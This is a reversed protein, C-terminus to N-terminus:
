GRGGPPASVPASPPPGAVAMAYRLAREELRTTLDTFLEWAELGPWGEPLAEVPLGVDLFPLPRWARLVTVHDVMAQRDDLEHGEARWREAIAGVAEIFQRYRQDLGPLDWSQRVLDSPTGFARYHARFLHVYGELEAEALAERAEAEVHWPALWVASALNGFGLWSLRSRLVYRDARKTDPVSFVAVVWGDELSSTQPRRYIRLDGRALLRSGSPSLVYGASDWRRSSEVMGRRKLRSIASRVSQADVGLDAMLRIVGAIPMWGDLRRMYAGFVTLILARPGASEAVGAGFEPLM